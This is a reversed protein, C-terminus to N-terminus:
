SMLISRVRTKLQQQKREMTDQVGSFDFMTAPNDAPTVRDGPINQICLFAVGSLKRGKAMCSSTTIMPFLDASGPRLDTVDVRSVCGQTTSIDARWMIAKSDSPRHYMELWPPLTLMFSKMDEDDTSVQLSEPTTYLVSGFIKQQDSPKLPIQYYGNLPTTLACLPFKEAYSYLTTIVSHIFQHCYDVLQDRTWHPYLPHQEDCLRRFDMDTQHSLCFDIVGPTALVEDLISQSNRTRTYEMRYNLLFTPNVNIYSNFFNDSHGRILLHCQHDVLSQHYELPKQNQRRPLGYDTIDNWVCEHGVSSELEYHHPVLPLPVHDGTSSVQFAAHFTPLKDPPAGGHCLIMRHQTEDHFQLRVVVPLSYLTTWILDMNVPSDSSTHRTSCQTHFGNSWLNTDTEHNGRLFILRQQNRHICQLSLLLLLSPVSTNGRDVIDGLFVICHGEAIEGTTKDFINQLALRELLLILSMVGGHIDGIAIVKTTSPITMDMGHYLPLPQNDGTFRPLWRGLRSMMDNMNVVFGDFDPRSTSQYPKSKLSLTGRHIMTQLRGYLAVFLDTPTMDDTMVFEEIPSRTTPRHTLTFYYMSDDFPTVVVSRLESSEMVAEFLDETSRVLDSVYM